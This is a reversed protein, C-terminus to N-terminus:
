MVLLWCVTMRIADAREAKWGPPLFPFMIDLVPCRSAAHGPKGCSFCVVTSWDRRGSDRNPLEQSPAAFPLLTQILVEMETFGSRGTPGPQVPRDNGMLRQILLEFESPIPTAKPPSVAPTPLLHQMLSLLMDQAERTM